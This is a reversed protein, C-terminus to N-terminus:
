GARPWTTEVDFDTGPAQSEERRAAQAIMLNQLWPPMPAEDATVPRAAGAADGPDRAFIQALMKWFIAWGKLNTAKSLARGETFLKEILRDRVTEEGGKGFEGQTPLRPDFRPLRFAVGITVATLVMLAAFITIYTSRPSIHGAM